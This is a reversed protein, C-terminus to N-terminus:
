VPSKLFYQDMEGIPGDPEGPFFQVLEFKKALKERVYEVPHFAICGGYRSPSGALGGNRVVLRGARFDERESQTLFGLYSEGCTTALLYGGPRLVRSLEEIWLFQQLEALHTFVSFTYIFDFTNDRYALPPLAQNVECEAFPLNQRCWSVQDTNIDSGYVKAKTGLHHFQRMDRGAGCGFDLIARFSDIDAGHQRLVELIYQIRGSHQFFVRLDACESWALKRLHLPPIPLGDRAGRIWYPANHYLLRLKPRARRYLTRFHVPRYLMSAIGRLPHQQLNDKIVKKM